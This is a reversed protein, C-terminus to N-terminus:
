SAVPLPGGIGTGDEARPVLRLLSSAAEASRGARELGRATTHISLSVARLVLLIRQIFMDKTLGDFYAYAYFRMESLQIDPLIFDVGMLSM